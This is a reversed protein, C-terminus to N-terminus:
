REEANICADCGECGRIAAHRHGCEDCEKVLFVDPIVLEM